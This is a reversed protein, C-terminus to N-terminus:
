YEFTHYFDEARTHKDEDTVSMVSVEAGLTWAALCLLLLILKKM